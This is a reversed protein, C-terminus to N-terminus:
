ALLVVEGDIVKEVELLVTDLPQNKPPKGAVRPTAGTAACSSTKLRSAM